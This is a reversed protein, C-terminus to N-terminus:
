RLKRDWSVNERLVTAPNGGVVCNQGISRSVVAGAAIISGSGVSVGKLILTHAAVWVHDGIRVSRAGNIREGTAADVVSHGDTTRVEVDYAFMCDSGIRLSHENEGVNLRVQEFTSGAGVELSCHQGRVTLLGGDKIAVNAELVLRNGSGSVEIDVNALRVGPAFLVENETGTVALSVNRLTTGSSRVRNGPAVRFTCTARLLRRRAAQFASM